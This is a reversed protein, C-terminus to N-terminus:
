LQYGEKVLRNRTYKKRRLKKTRCGNFPVPSRDVVASIFIDEKLLADFLAERM